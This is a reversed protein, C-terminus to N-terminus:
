ADRGALCLFVPEFLPTLTVCIGYVTNKFLSTTNRQGQLCFMLHHEPYRLLAPYREFINSVPEQVISNEIGINHFTLFNPKIKGAQQCKYLSLAEDGSGSCLPVFYAWCLLDTKQPILVIRNTGLFYRVRYGARYRLTFLLTM